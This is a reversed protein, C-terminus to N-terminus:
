QRFELRFLWCFGSRRSLFFLCCYLFSISILPFGICNVSMVVLCIQLEKSVFLVFVSCLYRLHVFPLIDSFSCISLFVHSCFNRFKFFRFLYLLAVSMIYLYMCLFTGDSSLIFLHILVMELVYRRQAVLM